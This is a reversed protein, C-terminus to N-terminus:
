MLEVSEDERRADRAYYESISRLLKATRPYILQLKEADHKFQESLKREQSGGEYFGRSTVGRLNLKGVIFGEDFSDSELGEIVMRVAEHPWVGDTGIPSKALLAGIRDDGINKRDVEELGERTKKIWDLLMGTDIGNETQGPIKSLKDYLKRANTARDRLVEIDLGEDERETHEPKYIFKIIQVFMEPNTLVENELHKPEIIPLYLWELQMQKDKELDNVNQLFKIITKVSHSLKSFVQSDIDDSTVFRIMLEYLLSIDLPTKKFFDDILKEAIMIAPPFNEYNLCQIIATYYNEINECECRFFSTKNWFYEQIEIDVSNILRILADDFPLALLFNASLETNWQEYETNFWTLLKSSNERYLRSFYSQAALLYIKPASLWKQALPTFDIDKCLAMKEGVIGPYPSREVLTEIGSEGQSNYIEQLAALQMELIVLEDKKYSDESDRKPPHLVDISWSNEFLYQNKLVPDDVEVYYYAKELEALKDETMSWEADPFERHRSIISRLAKMIEVHTDTDILSIDNAMLTNVIKKFQEDSVKDISEILGTWISPYDKALELLLTIIRDIYNYYDSNLITPDAVEAWNQYEPKHIPTATQIKGPLLEILIEKAIYPFRKVLVSDLVSLKDELSLGTYNVWGLFIRILSDKPSNSMSSKFELRSLKVLLSSARAIYERNWCLQELSWLLSCYPCGGFMADVSNDFLLEIDNEQNLTKDLSDMFEYPAAEALLMLNQGYSYWKEASPNEELLQRIWYRIPEVPDIGMSCLEPKSAILALTQALGEKLHGSWKPLKGEISAFARKEPALEFAPDKEGLVEPIIMGLREFAPRDIRHAILYWLDIKSIVQWVNNVIRIPSGEISALKQIHSEFKEYPMNAIKSISACDHENKRNWASCFFVVSLVVPDFDEIWRPRIPALTKIFPHRCMPEYFGHTDKYVQYAKSDEIGLSKVAEQVQPYKMKDLVISTSQDCKDLSVPLIVHHQTSAAGVNVPIFDYPILILPYKFDLLLDWSVQDKVVLIRSSYSKDGYLAAIAFAYAESTTTACTKTLGTTSSLSDKLSEIQKERGALVFTPTLPIRTNNSWIQFAQEIDWESINRKGILRAFWRHVAPCQYLWAELDDANLAKVEKWIGEANKEVIWEDKKSWARSTVFVFASDAPRAESPDSSRKNYDSNAKANVDKNTGCEWVSFGDPVFENGASVTCTGDYGGISTSDGSPCHLSTPQTSALILRYVLRPLLDEAEHKKTETWHKIDNATVEWSM